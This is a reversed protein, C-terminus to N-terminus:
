LQYNVKYRSESELYLLKQILDATREDQLQEYLRILNKLIYSRVIEDNSELDIFTEKFREEYAQFLMSRQETGALGIKWTAQFLDVSFEPNLDYTINWIEPFVKLIRKETDSTALYSLLQGARLRLEINSSSLDGVLKDWVEYVWDVKNSVTEILLLFAKNQTEWDNEKALQFLMKTEADM